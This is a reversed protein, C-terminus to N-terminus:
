LSIIIPELQKIAKFRYDIVPSKINRNLKIVFESKNKINKSYYKLPKIEVTKKIDSRLLPEVEVPLLHCVEYHELNFDAITRDAKVHKGMIVITDKIVGYLQRITAYTGGYFRVEVTPVQNIMRGQENQQGGELSYNILHYRDGSSKNFQDKIRYSDLEAKCYQNGSREQYIKKYKNEFLKKMDNYFEIRQVYAQYCKKLSIHFHLGCSRNVIYDDNEQYKSFISIISYLEKDNLPKTKIEYPSYEEQDLEYTRVTGDQTIEILGAQELEELGSRIGNYYCGEFEIGILNIYDPYKYM